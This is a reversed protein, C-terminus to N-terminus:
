EGIGRLIYAVVLVIIGSMLGFIFPYSPHTFVPIEEITLSITITVNLYKYDETAGGMVDIEEGLHYYEWYIRLLFGFNTGTELYSGEYHTNAIPVTGNEYIVALQEDVVEMGNYNGYHRDLLEIRDFQGEATMTPNVQTKTITTNATVVYMSVSVFSMVIIAIFWYTIKRM